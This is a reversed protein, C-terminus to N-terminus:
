CMVQAENCRTPHIIRNCVHHLDVCSKHKMEIEEMVDIMTWVENIGIVFGKKM